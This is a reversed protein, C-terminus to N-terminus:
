MSLKDRDYCRVDMCGPNFVGWYRMQCSKWGFIKVCGRTRERTRAYSNKISLVKKTTWGTQPTPLVCHGSSSCKDLDWWLNNWVSISKPQYSNPREKENQFEIKKKEQDLHFVCKWEIHFLHKFILRSLFSYAPKDINLTTKTRFYCCHRRPSFANRPSLCLVIHRKPSTKIHHQKDDTLSQDNRGEQALTLRALSILSSQRQGKSKAAKGTETGIKAIKWGISLWNEHRTSM